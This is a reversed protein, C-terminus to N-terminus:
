RERAAGLRRRAAALSSVAGGEAARLALLLRGLAVGASSLLLQWQELQGKSARARLGVGLEHHPREHGDVRAPLDQPLAPEAGHVNTQNYCQPEDWRPKTHLTSATWPTLKSRSTGTRVRRWDLSVAGRM